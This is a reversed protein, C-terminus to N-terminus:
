RRKKRPNLHGLGLAHVAAGLAARGKGLPGALTSFASGPVGQGFGQHFTTTRGCGATTGAPGPLLRLDLRQGFDTDLFDRPKGGRGTLQVTHQTAAQNVARDYQNAAVRADALRGNEQLGQAVQRHAHRREIDSAFLGLLLHGHTGPTQPQGLVLQPHHGFGADFGDDGRRPHFLGLDHHDIRDLRDEGLLQLRRRATHGLHTFTGRQQHTIGLLTAGRDEQDTM